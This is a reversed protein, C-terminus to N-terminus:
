SNGGESKKLSEIEKKTLERYALKPLDGLSVKEIKTRKMKLIPHNYRLFFERILKGKNSNTKLELFTHKGSKSLSLRRIIKPKFFGSPVKGGKRMKALEENNVRGVVKLIYTKELNNAKSSLLEPDNTLIMLGESYYDLTDIPLVKHPFERLIDGLITEKTKKNHSLDMKLKQPKNFAYYVLKKPPKEEVGDVKVKDKKYDIKFYPNKIVEGNVEVRGSEIAKKVEDEHGFQTCVLYKWLDIKM